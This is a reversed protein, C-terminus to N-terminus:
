EPGSFHDPYERNLLAALAVGDPEGPTDYQDLRVFAPANTLFDEGFSSVSFETRGGNFDVMLRNGSKLFAIPILYFSVQGVYDNERGEPGHSKHSKDFLAIRRLPAKVNNVVMYVSRLPLEASILSSSVLRLVANKALAEYEDSNAPLCVDLAVDRISEFGAGEIPNKDALLQASASPPPLAAVLAVFLQLTWM